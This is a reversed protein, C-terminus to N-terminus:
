TTVVINISGTDTRAFESSLIEINNTSLTSASKGITLSNVEAKGFPTIYQFLRSWYVDEDTALSNIHDILAAKIQEEAGAYDVSLFTINMDIFIDVGVAKSFNVTQPIGQSDSLTVSTSGYTPTGLGTTVLIVRAIQEDTVGAPLEGVTVHVTQPPTGDDGTVSSSTNNIIEVQEIGLELLRARVVDSVSTYNRLVTKNRSNRYSAESQAPSGKTGDITQTISDWGTIPSKITTLTGALIPIPGPVSAYVLVGSPITADLQTVFENGDDDTVQSGKPVITGETGVLEITAQSRTAVGYELGTILGLNRLGAGVALNPNYSNYILGLQSWLQALEFSFIHALNGDPSSPDLDIGPSATNLKATVRELIPKYSDPEFGATTLGTM